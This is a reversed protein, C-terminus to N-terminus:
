SRSVEVVVPVDSGWIILLYKIFKYISVMVDFSKKIKDTFIVLSKYIRRCKVINMDGKTLRETMIKLRLHVARLIFYYMVLPVDFATVQVLYLAQFVYPRLCYIQSFTCYVISNIIKFLVFFLTTLVTEFEISPSNFIILESDIALLGNQLRYFTGSKNLFTLILVHACHNVTGFFQLFAILLGYKNVFFILTISNVIICQIFSFLKFTFRLKRSRNYYFGFDLCLVVHVFIFFLKIINKKLEM